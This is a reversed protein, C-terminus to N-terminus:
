QRKKLQEQLSEIEMMMMVESDMEKKLLKEFGARVRANESKQEDLQLKLTTIEKVLIDVKKWRDLFQGLEEDGYMDNNENLFSVSISSADAKMDKDVHGSPFAISRIDPHNNNENASNQLASVMTHAENRIQQIERKSDQLKRANDENSLDVEKTKVKGNDDAHAFVDLLAGNETDGGGNCENHAASHIHFNLIWERIKNRSKNEQVWRAVTKVDNIYCFDLICSFFDNSRTKKMSNCECGSLHLLRIM